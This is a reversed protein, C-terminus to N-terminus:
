VSDGHRVVTGVAAAGGSRSEEAKIGRGVTCDVTYLEGNHKKGGTDTRRDTWSAANGCM